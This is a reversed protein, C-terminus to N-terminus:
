GKLTKIIQVRQHGPVATVPGDTIQILGASELRRLSSWMRDDSTGWWFFSKVRLRNYLALATISEFGGITELVTRDFNGRM